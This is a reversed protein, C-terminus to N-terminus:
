EHSAKGTRAIVTIIFDNGRYGLEVSGNADLKNDNDDDPAGYPVGLSDFRLENTEGFVASIIEIGNYYKNDDYDVRLGEPNGPRYPDEVASPEEEPDLPPEGYDYVTYSNESVDFLIGYIRHNTMALRKAYRIDSLLKEGAGNLKVPYYSGSRAIVVFALISVLVIVMIIEIITFGSKRMAYHFEQLSDSSLKM